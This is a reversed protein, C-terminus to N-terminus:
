GGRKKNTKRKAALKIRYNMILEEIQRNNLTPHAVKFVDFISYVFGKPRRQCRIDYRGMLIRKDFTPKSIGLIRSAEIGWICNNIDLKRISKM